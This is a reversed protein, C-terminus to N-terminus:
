TIIRGDLAALVGRLIFLIMILAVAAGEGITFCIQGTAPNPFVNGLIMTVIVIILGSTLITHISHDYASQLVEKLDDTSRRKELYYDTFLIAYDITAGMLISQVMLLALYYMSGGTFRILVMTAFVATQILSVLVLPILLSRFAVLVVLFIVVATLITMRNLESAFSQSMEWAMPTSGILYFDGKLREHGEESLRNLFATGEESEDPFTTNLVLLSYQKGKMMSGADDLKERALSLSEKIDDSLFADFLPNGEANEMVYDLLGQFTMRFGSPDEGESAAAMNYLTQLMFDSSEGALMEKVSDPVQMGAQSEAMQLLSPLSAALEGATFAKGLTQSWSLASTVQETKEIEPIWGAMAEEDENNYLVVMQNARPFHDDIPTTEVYTYTFRTGNKLFLLVGFLIVLAALLSYRFRSCFVALPTMNFQLVKKRTRIIAKEFFLILTPLVTMTCVLSIAVGKALVIGVEAGIKFSMFILVLLGAITTLSSSSIATFSESLARQMCVTHEEGSETERIHRYRNMLMIAYDMSLVLQLVAGISLTIDSTGGLIYNTGTNIIVAVGITALFLFPEVWSPSMSLLIILIILIALAIIWLPVDGGMTDDEAWVMEYVGGYQEEIERIVGNLEPSGYGYSSSLIYLTYGDKEYSPDGASFSVSDVNPIASLRERIEPKEEDPVNHFMVRVTNPMALSSFEEAMIDVGKKMTSDSPLYRTMDTIVPTKLALFGCLVAALLMIIFAKLRHRILAASFKTM